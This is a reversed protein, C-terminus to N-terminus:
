DTYQLAAYFVGQGAESAAQVAPGGSAMLAFHRTVQFVVGVAVATLAKGGVTDPTQHYVEVGLNLRKSMQRTVAWGALTYDRRGPGPNIDYGGGGFTSWPGFDKQAWVPLFLGFRAPGFARAQTPLTLAPFVAVDPTLGHGAQHLVRYKASIQINGLGLADQAGRAYDLPAFLTLQLDRAGGYNIDFGTQGATQGPTRLGTVFVRDEWHGPPTPEPDDTTYPPGAQCPSAAAVIALAALARANFLGALNAKM